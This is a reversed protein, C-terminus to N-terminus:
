RGVLDCLWGFMQWKSNRAVSQTFGDSRKAELDGINISRLKNSVFAVLKMSNELFVELGM